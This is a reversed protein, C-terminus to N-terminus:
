PSAPHRQTLYTANTAKAETRRAGGPRPSVDVDAASARLAAVTCQERPRTAFPDFRFHRMANEHTIKAISRDSPSSTGAAELSKWLMEPSTPWTSDSHPYDAEWCVTDM